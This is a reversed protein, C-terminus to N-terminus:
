VLPWLSVVWPVIPPNLFAQPTSNKVQSTEITTPNCNAEYTAVEPIWAGNRLGMRQITDICFDLQNRQQLYGTHMALSRNLISDSLGCEVQEARCLGVFVTSANRM